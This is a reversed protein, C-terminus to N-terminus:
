NQEQSNGSEARYNRFARLTGIKLDNIQIQQQKSRAKQTREKTVQKSHFMYKNKKEERKEVHQTSKENARM